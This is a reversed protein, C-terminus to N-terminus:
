GEIEVEQNRRDPGKADSEADLRRGRRHGCAHAFQRNCLKRCAFWKCDANNADISHLFVQDGLRNTLRPETIYLLITGAVFFAVPKERFRHSLVM